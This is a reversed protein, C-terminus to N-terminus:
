EVEMWTPQAYLKVHKKYDLYILYKVMEEGYREKTSAFHHLHSYSPSENFVEYVEMMMIRLDELEIEEM